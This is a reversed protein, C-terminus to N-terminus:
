LIANIFFEVCPVVGSRLELCHSYYRNFVILPPRFNQGICGLYIWSLTTTTTLRPVQHSDAVTQVLPFVLVYM